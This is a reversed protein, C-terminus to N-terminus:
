YKQISGLKKWVQDTEAESGSEEPQNQLQEVLFEAFDGKNDLLQDYTGMEAIQGGKM